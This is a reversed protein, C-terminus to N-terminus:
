KRVFNQVTKPRFKRVIRVFNLRFHTKPRIPRHGFHGHRLDYNQGLNRGFFTESPNRVIKVCVRFNLNTPCQVLNRVCESPILYLKMRIESPILNIIRRIESPILNKNWRNELSILNLKKRNESPISNLKRRYESLNEM